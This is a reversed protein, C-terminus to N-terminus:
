GFPTFLIDFYLMENTYDNLGEITCIERFTFRTFLTSIREFLFSPLKLTSFKQELILTFTLDESEFSHFMTM